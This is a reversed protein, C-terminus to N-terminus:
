RKLRSKYKQVLLALLTLVGEMQWGAKLCRVLALGERWVGPALESAGGWEESAGGGLAHGGGREKGEAASATPMRTEENKIKQPHM